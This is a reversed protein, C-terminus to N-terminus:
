HALDDFKEKWPIPVTTNMKTQPEKRLRFALEEIADQTLPNSMGKSLPKSMGKSVHAPKQAVKQADRGPPREEKLPPPTGKQLVQEQEAKAEQLQKFLNTM